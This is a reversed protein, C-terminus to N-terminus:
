AFSLIADDGEWPAVMAARPPLLPLRLRVKPSQVKASQEFFAPETSNVAKVWQANSVFLKALTADMKDSYHRHHSLRFSQQYFLSSLSVSKSTSLLTNKIQTPVHLRSNQPQTVIPRPPVAAGPRSNSSTTVCVVIKAAASVRSPMVIM